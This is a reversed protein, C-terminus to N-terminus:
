GELQQWVAESLQRIQAQAQANNVNNSMIVLVYAGHPAYIIAADNEAGPIEGTKNATQTGQPVGAPIKSLRTQQQMLLLLADSSAKSVLEGRYAKALIQGCDRVSTVKKMPDASGSSSLLVHMATDGFGMQAATNNVVQMGAQADGNGLASVLANADENSSVTIMSRLQQEIGSSDALTHQEIAQYVAAAIYLKILSASPSAHSNITLEAGTQLDQAYVQWDGAFGAIQTQLTSALADYQAQKATQQAQKADPQPTAKRTLEDSDVQANANKSSKSDATTQKSTSNSAAAVTESNGSFQQYAYVGAASLVLVMVCVCVLIVRMRSQSRGASHQARHKARPTSM